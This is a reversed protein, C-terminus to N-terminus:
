ATKTRHQRRKKDTLAFSNLTMRELEEDPVDSELIVTNWYTKNMHYAPIVGEFAKRLFDSEMPDCKLNVIWRGDHEMILAFWKGTDSHRVVWSSFDENFPQDAQAGGINRCFDLYQEKTV